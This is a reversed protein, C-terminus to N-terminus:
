TDLLEMLLKLKQLKEKKVGGLVDIDNAALKLMLDHLNAKLAAQVAENESPTVEEM